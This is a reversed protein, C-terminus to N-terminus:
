SVIKVTCMVLSPLTCQVIVIAIGLLLVGPGFVSAARSISLAGPYASNARLREERSDHSETGLQANM